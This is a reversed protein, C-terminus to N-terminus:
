QGQATFSATGLAEGAVFVGEKGQPKAFVENFTAATAAGLALSAGEVTVTRKTPDSTVPGRLTLGAVPTRGIKGTYPPSPESDVEPSATRAALDFWDELWFVQGGGLQLLELAGSTEITGSAADPAITGGFIPLTFQPGPHEAPFIPTVAVFLERLKAEFGPDLYLSVDGTRALTVTLPEATTVASGLAQGPEFVGKLHLKKGLRTALKASLSLKSSRVKEGFGRRSVSLREVVALRLQGGGVRASFPTHRQSTKLQLAKLPLSRGEASFLLAGEHDVTGTANTPDFKGGSVPFSAVGGVVRARGRASVKVGNQKLMNLFDRDLTFRTVGSGVPDYDAQASPTLSLASALALAVAISLGGKM